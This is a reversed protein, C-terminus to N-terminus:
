LLQVHQAVRWVLCSVQMNRLREELLIGAKQSIFWCHWSGAMKNRLTKEWSWVINSQWYVYIFLLALHRDALTKPFSSMSCLRVREEKTGNQQHHLRPNLLDIKLINEKHFSYVGRVCCKLHYDLKWGCLNRKKEKKRNLMFFLKLFIM